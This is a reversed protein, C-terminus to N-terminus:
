HFRTEDGKHEPNSGSGLPGREFTVRSRILDPACRVIRAFRM